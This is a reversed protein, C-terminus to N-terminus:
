QEDEKHKILWSKFDIGYYEEMLFETFCRADELSLKDANIDDILSRWLNIYDELEESDGGYSLYDYDEALAADNAIDNLYQEDIEAYETNFIDRIGYESNILGLVQNKELFIEKEASESFYM